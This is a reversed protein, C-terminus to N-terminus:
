LFNDGHGRFRAQLYGYGPKSEASIGGDEAPEPTWGAAGEDFDPNEVHTLLYPDDSLADTNGEICYHRFLRGAWRVAEEDAYSSAYEQVGGLGFFAPHTALFRFQMDMHVKFDVSPYLNLSYTPQCMFALVMITRGTSGPLGEEWLPMEEAMKRIAARAKAETPRESLYQERCIYGGGAM